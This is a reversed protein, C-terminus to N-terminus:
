ATLKQLGSTLMEPWMAVGVPIAVAGHGVEVHLLYGLPVMASGSASLSYAGMASKM